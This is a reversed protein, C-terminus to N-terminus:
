CNGNETTIGVDLSGDGELLGGFGAWGGYCPVDRAIIGISLTSHVNVSETVVCVPTGGGSRMTLQNTIPRYLVQVLGAM